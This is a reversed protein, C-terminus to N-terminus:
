EGLIDAAMVPNGASLGGDLMVTTGTIWASGASTLFVALHVVDGPHGLRGAPYWRTLRDLLDPDRHNRADWAGPTVITGAGIGVARIGDPGYRVAISRTLSDLGAKAASYAENGLYLKANVSSINLIVGHRRDRMGPLTARTCLYPGRLATGVQDNWSDPTTDILSDEYAYAASNILVDIRGWATHIEDFLAQVDHDKSIDGAHHSVHGGRATLDDALETVRGASRDVMAVSAGAAAYWRALASGIGGAAGTIVVVTDQWQQETM